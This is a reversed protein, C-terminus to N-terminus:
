FISSLVVGTTTPQVRLVPMGDQKFLDFIEQLYYASRTWSKAEGLAWM